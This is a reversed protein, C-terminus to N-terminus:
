QLPRVCRALLAIKRLAYAAMLDALLLSLFVGAPV